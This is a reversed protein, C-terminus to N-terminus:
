RLVLAHLDSVLLALSDYAQPKFSAEGLDALQTHTNLPNDLTFHCVLVNRARVDNHEIGLSNLHAAAAAVQILVVIVHTHNLQLGEFELHDVLDLMSGFKAIPTVMSVRSWVDYEIALLPLLHPHPHKKLKMM